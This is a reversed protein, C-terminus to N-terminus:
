CRQSSSDPKPSQRIWSKHGAAHGRGSRLGVWRSRMRQIRSWWPGKGVCGGRYAVNCPRGKWFFFFFFSTTDGAPCTMAKGTDEVIRLYEPSLCLLSPRQDRPERPAKCKKREENATTCTKNYLARASQLEDEKRRRECAALSHRDHSKELQMQLRALHQQVGYLNVGLEQRQIRTQKTAADQILSPPCPRPLDKPAWGAQSSSRFGYM